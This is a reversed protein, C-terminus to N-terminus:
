LTFSVEKWKKNISEWIMSTTVQTIPHIKVIPRFLTMAYHICNLTGGTKDPGYLAIVITSDDVMWENRKQMKWPAYGEECVYLTKDAQGVLMALEYKSKPIWKAEFGPFPLAMTLKAPYGAEKVGIVARAAVQDFGLAGGSIFETHGHHAFSRIIEFVKAYVDPWHGDPAYEGEITRHGTFCIKM